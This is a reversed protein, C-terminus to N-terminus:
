QQQSSQVTFTIGQTLFARDADTKYQRLEPLPAALLDEFLARCHPRAQGSREFMEDHSADLRYGSCSESFRRLPRIDPRAGMVAVIAFDRGSEGPGVRINFPSAGVM